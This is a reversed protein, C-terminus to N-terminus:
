KGQGGATMAADVDFLPVYGEEPYETVYMYLGAPMRKNDDDLPAHEATLNILTVECELQDTDTDRDPAIFELAEMVQKATLTMSHESDIWKADKQEAVQQVGFEEETVRISSRLEEASCIMAEPDDEPSTRDPLECIRLILADIFADSLAPPSQDAVQQAPLPLAARKPFLLNTIAEAPTAGFGADSEQLNVFDFKTACWADGDKFIRQYSLSNGEFTYQDLAKCYPCNKSGVDATKFDVRCNNCHVWEDPPAVPMPAPQAAEPQVAACATCAGRYEGTQDHVDGTGDCTQCAASLAEPQAIPQEPAKSTRENVTRSVAEAIVNFQTKTWEDVEDWNTIATIQAAEWAIQGLTKM